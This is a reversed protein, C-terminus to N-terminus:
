QRVDESSFPETRWVMQLGAALVSGRRVFFVGPLNLQEALALKRGPLGGPGQVMPTTSVVSNASLVEVLRPRMRVMTREYTIESFELGVVYGADGAKSERLFVVRGHAEAGKPAILDGGAKLASNLRATVPDGVAGDPRVATKLTLNLSLGAPVDLVRSPPREIQKDGGEDNFVLVSEGTYQHCNNFAIVNKNEGGFDTIRLESDRPLLFDEGGVRVRQYDVADGSALLELRAPIDDASSELRVVDLTEADAWFSGHFGVVAEREGNRLTYGSREIPVDYDWRHTRRGDLVKEGLYRFNPAGTLFVAKALLGFNGTSTAGGMVMDKLERDEFRKAGPWSFLEKGDVLAVELRVRDVTEWRLGASARRLRDVTQSCTYNPLRKLNDSMRAIVQTLLEEGPQREEGAALGVCVGCLISLVVRRPM